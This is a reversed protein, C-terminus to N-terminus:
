KLGFDKMSKQTVVMMYNFLFVKVPNQGGQAAIQARMAKLEKQRALQKEFAELLHKCTQM